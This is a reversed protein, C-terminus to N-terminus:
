VEYFCNLDLKYLLQHYILSGLTYTTYLEDNSPYANLQRHLNSTGETTKEFTEFDLSPLSLSKEIDRLKGLISKRDVITWTHKHDGEYAFEPTGGFKLIDSSAQVAFAFKYEYGTNFFCYRGM